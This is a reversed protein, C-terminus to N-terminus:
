NIFIIGSIIVINVAWATNFSFYIKMCGVYGVINPVLRGQTRRTKLFECM